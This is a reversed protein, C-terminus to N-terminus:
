GSHLRTRVSRALLLIDLDHGINYGLRADTYLISGTYIDARDIADMGRLALLSEFLSLHKVDIGIFANVATSTFRGARDGRDKFFRRSRFFPLMENLNVRVEKFSLLKSGPCKNENAVQYNAPRAHKIYFM